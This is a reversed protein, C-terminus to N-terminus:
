KLVGMIEKFLRSYEKGSYSAPQGGLDWVTAAQGSSDAIVQKQHIVSKFVAQHHPCTKGVVGNSRNQTKDGERCPLRFKVAQPLGQRVSQAQKILRM